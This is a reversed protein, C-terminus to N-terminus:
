LKIFNLLLTMGIKSYETNSKKKKKTVSKSEHSTIPRSLNEINKHNM